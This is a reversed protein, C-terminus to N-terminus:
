TVQEMSFTPPTSTTYEQFISINMNQFIGKQKLSNLAIEKNVSIKEHTRRYSLPQHYATLSMEKIIAFMESGTEIISEYPDFSLDAVFKTQVTLVRKIGTDFLWDDIRGFQKSALKGSQKVTYKTGTTNQAAAAGVVALYQ